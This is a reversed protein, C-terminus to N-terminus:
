QLRKFEASFEELFTAVFRQPRVKKIVIPHTRSVAEFCEGLAGDGIKSHLTFDSPVIPIPLNCSKPAVLRLVEDPLPTTDEIHPSLSINVAKTAPTIGASPLQATKQTAKTAPVPEPSVSKTTFPSSKTPAKDAAYPTGQKEIPALEHIPQEPQVQKQTKEIQDPVTSKSQEIKHDDKYNKLDAEKNQEKHEEEVPEMDSTHSTQDIQLVPPESNEHAPAPETVTSKQEKKQIDRTKVDNLQSETPQVNLDSLDAKQPVTSEKQFPNSPPPIEDGLGDSQLLYDLEAVSIVPATTPAPARFPPRTAKAPSPMSSTREIKALEAPAKSPEAHTDTPLVTTIPESVPPPVESISTQQSPTPPPPIIDQEPKSNHTDFVSLDGEASLLADM